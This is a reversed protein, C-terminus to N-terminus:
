CVPLGDHLPRERQNETATDDVDREPLGNGIRQPSALRCCLPLQRSGQEDNDALVALPLEEPGDVPAEVLGLGFCPLRLNCAEHSWAQTPWGNGDTHEHRDRAKRRNGHSRALREPPAGPEELVAHREQMPVGDGARVALAGRAGRM